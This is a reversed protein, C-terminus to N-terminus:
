LKEYNSNLPENKEFDFLTLKRIKYYSVWYNQLASIYNKHASEQRNLALTLSNVDAKGILFRQKTADFAQNAINMAEEASQILDQQVNFDNVSMLIEEQLSLENQKVSIRTVNLNNKAMNVKGKRVGWDILPVQVGVTIIDQQLPNEYSGGITSAVQNFGVSAYLSADFNASKKAKEVAQEAELINQKNDLLDPNNKRVQDLAKEPSLEIRAPKDPLILRIKTNEDLNLYSVFSFMAKKLSIEANKLSNRANIVDLKLTLM